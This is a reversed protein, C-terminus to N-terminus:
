TTLFLKLEGPLPCHLFLGPSMPTSLPQRHHTLSSYHFKDFIVSTHCCSATLPFKAWKLKWSALLLWSVKFHTLWSTRSCVLVLGKQLFWWCCSSDPMLIQLACGLWCTSPNKITDPKGHGKWGATTSSSLWIGIDLVGSLLFSLRGQCMWWLRKGYTESLFWDLDRTMPHTHLIRKRSAAAEPLVCYETSYLLNLFSKSGWRRQGIWLQGSGPGTSVTQPQASSAQPSLSPRRCTKQICKWLCHYLSLSASPLFLGATCRISWCQFQCVL